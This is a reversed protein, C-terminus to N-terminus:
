GLCLGIPEGVFGLVAGAPSLAAGLRGHTRDEVGVDHDARQDTRLSRRAPDENMEKPVAGEVQDGRGRRQVFQTPTEPIRLNSLM